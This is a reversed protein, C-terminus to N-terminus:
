SIPIKKTEEYGETRPINVTLLGDKVEASIEDINYRHGDINFRKYFSSCSVSNQEEERCEGKITLSEGDWEVDVNDKSLGPVAAQIKLGGTEEAINMKPLNDFYNMTDPNDGRTLMSELVDLPTRFLSLSRM